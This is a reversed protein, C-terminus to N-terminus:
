QTETPRLKGAQLIPSVTAPMGPHHSAPTQLAGGQHVDSLANEKDNGWLARHLGESVPSLLYTIVASCRHLAHIPVSYKPSAPKVLLGSHCVTPQMLPRASLRTLAPASHGQCSSLPKQFKDSIFLSGAVSQCIHDGLATTKPSCVRFATHRTTLFLQPLSICLFLCVPSRPTQVPAPTHARLPRPQALLGHSLLTSTASQIHLVLSHRSSLLSPLKRAQTVTPHCPWFSLALSSFLLDPHPPSMIWESSEIALIHVCVWLSSIEVTFFCLM